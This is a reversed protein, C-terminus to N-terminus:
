VTPAINIRGLSEVISPDLYFSSVHGGPDGNHRLSTHRVQPFTGSGTIKFWVKRVSYMLDDERIRRQEM